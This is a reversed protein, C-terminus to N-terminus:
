YHVLKINDLYLYGPGASGGPHTINFVPRYGEESKSAYILDTLNIYMKKWTDSPYIGYAFEIANGGSFKAELGVLFSFDSKYNFELYVDRGDSAFDNYFDQSTIANVKNSADVNLALSYSGEAVVNSQTVATTLLNQDADETFRNSNEFDEIFSFKATPKYEFVPQIALTDTCACLQVQSRYPELFPYIYANDRLGNARIGPQISIDHIGEGIVPIINDAPVVGLLDNGVYLWYDEINQSISGAAPQYTIQAPKLHLYTPLPSPEQSCSYIAALCASLSLYKINETIKMGMLFRLLIFNLKLVIVIKDMYLSHCVSNYNLIINYTSKCGSRYLIIGAKILFIYAEGPLYSQQSLIM